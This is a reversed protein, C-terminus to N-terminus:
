QNMIFELLMKCKAFGHTNYKLFVYEGMVRAFMEDIIRTKIQPHELEGIM